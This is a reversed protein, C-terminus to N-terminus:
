EFRVTVAASSGRVSRVLAEVQTQAAAKAQEVLVDYNEVSERVEEVSASMTNLYAQYGDEASGAFRHRQYEALKETEDEDIFVAAEPEPCLVDIGSNGSETVAALKLDVTFVASGKLIYLASYDTGVSHHNALKVGAVLVQLRGAQELSTKVEANTDEASLGAETGAEAGAAIGETVGRYSGVALGVASGSASGVSAGLGSASFCFIAAAALILLLLVNLPLGKLWTLVRKM